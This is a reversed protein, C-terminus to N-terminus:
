IFSKKIVNHFKFYEKFKKLQLNQLKETLSLPARGQQSKASLYSSPSFGPCM